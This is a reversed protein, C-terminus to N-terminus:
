STTKAAQFLAKLDKTFEISTSEDPFARRPIIFGGNPRIHIFLHKDTEWIDEIAPWKVKTSAFETVDNVGELSISYNHIGLTLNQGKKYNKRIRRATTFQIIKSLFLFYFFGWLGWLVFIIGITLRDDTPLNLFGTGFIFVIGLIFMIFALPLTFLQIKKLNRKSKPANQIYYNNWAIVDEKEIECEAKIENPIM